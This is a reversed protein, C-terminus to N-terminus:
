SNIKIKLKTGPKLSRSDTINNLKKIQEVTIGTYKQSIKWLTDGPQITHYIFGTNSATDVLASEANETSSNVTSNENPNEEGSDDQELQEERIAVKKKVNTYVLLKQGKLIRTTRMHNWKKVSSVSCGYRDALGSLTEGGKVNHIKKTRVWVTKYSIANGTDAFITDTEVEKKGPAINGTLRGIGLKEYYNSMMDAVIENREYTNRAGLVISVLRHDAKGSTAVLCFRANKTYGTKMGDVENEYDIVLRNHNRYIGSTKNNAIDAYGIKTVNLIEPYNLLETTLLLLDYPTSSNDLSRKGSPLGSPTSFFTNNMNLERARVNMRSMFDDVTGNLHKAITNCAENHSAIMALRFLADLTYIENVTYKIKKRKVRKVLVRTMVIEDNWDANCANIDEIVLLAVMMKTLSAIPYAYHLDKEWVVKKTKFDFLLGARMGNENQVIGDLPEVTFHKEHVLPLTCTDPLDISPQAFVNQAFLIFFIWIGPVRSQSKSNTIKSM